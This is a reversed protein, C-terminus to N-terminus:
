EEFGDRFIRDLFVIEAPASFESTNGDADAATAVLRDGITFAAADVMFSQAGAGIFEQTGVFIRGEDGDAIFFEVTLPVSEFDVDYVVTIEAGEEEASTIDPFNQLRNAGADTDGADNPTVGITGSAHVLEIGLGTNAYIANGSIRNGEGADQELYVGEANFAIVNGQGPLAGGIVMGDGQILDVGGFANGLDVTGSRDTGLFNGRVVINDSGDVGGSDGDILVGASNAGIVNGSVTTGDQLVGVFNGDAGPEGFFSVGSFANGMPTTGDKAVGIVNGVVANNTPINGATPSCDAGAFFQVGDVDHGSILNGTAPTPGGVVNGSSDCLFVVGNAPNAVAAMGSEDTGIFNCEIVNSNSRVIALNNFFGRVNLGRIVSGSSGQELRLGIDAGDGQLVIRYSSRNEIATTCVAANGPQTSGDIITPSQIDPLFNGGATAINLVCIGNPCGPIDFHIEQLGPQNNAEQIAARLTCAGTGDDCFGDLQADPADAVTDVVHVQDELLTVCSVLVNTVPLGNGTGSNNNVTCEQRPNSPDVLVSVEYFEGVSIPTPFFFPGDNVPALDDTGNNQLILGQGSLGVIQGGVVASNAMTYTEDAAPEAFPLANGASDVIDQDAALDIGVTGNLEALDGGSVRLLFQENRSDAIVAAITATTGTVSFDSADVSAVPGDFIAAFSLEDAHTVEEKPDVRLFGSLAPPANDVIYGEDVAPESGALLNGAADAINQSAALDLGVDGNLGSLDGGSLTIEFVSSGSIPVVGAVPATTGNPVFDPADVNSVDGDFTARFTLTDANTTASSPAAREFALLVPPTSDLAALAADVQIRPRVLGSPSETVDVGTIKLANEIEDVTAAPVASKLLAFAGAVHPAAMSTGSISRARGPPTDDITPEASNISVGPALLDVMFASNSFNAVVDGDTTAGVTVAPEICGPAGVANNSGSNGSSISTAAGESRHQNIISLRSDTNCYDTFSGGGLSMNIAALNFSARNSYLWDLAGIQDSTYSLTCPSPLGFGGCFDTFRSFVNAAIIGAAPAVGILLDGSGPDAFEAGAAIGAVHTGHGCGAVPTESDGSYPCDDGADPTTTDEEVGGPCFSTAQGSVNSSFCLSEVIRGTFMPHEHDVGTDLIAVTTGAGTLGASHLAAAGILPITNNSNPPDVRDLAVAAVAPDSRLADIQQGTLFMSVLPVNRFSRRLLRNESNAASPDSLPMGLARELVSRQWAIRADASDGLPGDIGGDPHESLDFAVLVPVREFVERAEDLSDPYQALGPASIVLVAALVFL